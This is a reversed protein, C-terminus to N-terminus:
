LRTQGMFYTDSIRVKLDGLNTHQLNDFNLLSSKLEVISTFLYELEVLPTCLVDSSNRVSYFFDNCWMYDPQLIKNLICPSILYM